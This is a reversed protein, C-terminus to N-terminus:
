TCARRLAEAVAEHGQQVAKDLSTKGDADRISPDAGARLCLQVVDVHGMFAARHLPTAGGAKTQRNPDAGAGPPPPIFILPHGDFLRKYPPILLLPPRAGFQLLLAAVDTHGSRSAYHLPTYGSDGNKGDSHVSAPNKELLRRVRGIDGVSAAHCISTEFAVEDLSQAAATPFCCACDTGHSMLQSRLVNHAEAHNAFNQVNLLVKRARSEEM